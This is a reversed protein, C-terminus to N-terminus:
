HSSIWLYANVISSFNFTHGDAYISEDMFFTTHGKGQFFEINGQMPTFNPDGCNSSGYVPLKVGPSPPYVWPQVNPANMIVNGDSSQCAETCGYYAAMVGGASYGWIYCRSPNGFRSKADAICSNILTTDSSPVWSTGPSKVGIYIFGFVDSPSSFLTVYEEPTGSQGHLFVVFPSGAVADAPKYYYYYSGGVSIQGSSASGGPSYEYAGIDVRAGGTGDGDTVRTKGILDCVMETLVFDNNGLDIYSCTSNL